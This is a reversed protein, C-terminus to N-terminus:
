YNNTPNGTLIMPSMAPQSKEILIAEFIWISGCISEASLSIFDVPSGDTTLDRRGINMGMKRIIKLDIFVRGEDGNPVPINEDNM